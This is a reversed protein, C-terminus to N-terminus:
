SWIRVLIWALEPITEAFDIRAPSVNRVWTNGAGERRQVGNQCVDIKTTATITTALSVTTVGGVGAVFEEDTYLTAARKRKGSLDDVQLFRLAV